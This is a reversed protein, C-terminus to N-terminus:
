RLIARLQGDPLDWDDTKPPSNEGGNQSSASAGNTLKAARKRDGKLASALFLETNFTRDMSAFTNSFRVAIDIRLAAVDGKDWPERRLELANITSAIAEYHKRTMVAERPM